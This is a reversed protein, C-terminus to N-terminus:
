TPSLLVVLRAANASADFDRIFAQEDFTQITGAASRSPVVGALAAAFQVPFVVMGMVTLASFWLLVTRLRRHRFECRNRFYTQIFAFILSGVSFALLYPRLTESFFSASASGAAMLLTGLPLCCSLAAILSAISALSGLVSARGSVGRDRQM